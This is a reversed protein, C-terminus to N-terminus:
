NSGAGPATGALATRRGAAYRPRDTILVDIRPDVLFRDILPGSNVTWVMVGIGNRHCQAIVGLRALKHNAAVWGAQCSRVRPLPFLEERRILARRPWPVGALDRGLSLAAREDPFQHRIRAISAEQLSTAVFNGPGFNALALEIVEDEYGTEKLDLHGRVRGALLGMVEDVRPVQYELRDCLQGYSLSALPPGAPGARADHYVVLTGDGVKRIDFEAYEAGSAPAAKYAEYTEPSADESGGQHASILVL